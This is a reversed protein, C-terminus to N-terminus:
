ETWPPQAESYSQDRSLQVHIYHYNECARTLCMQKKLTDYIRASAATFRWTDDVHIPRSLMCFLFSLMKCMNQTKKTLHLRLKFGKFFTKFCEAHLIFRLIKQLINKFTKRKRTVTYRQVDTFLSAPALIGHRCARVHKSVLFAHRFTRFYTSSSKAINWWQENNSHCTQWKM